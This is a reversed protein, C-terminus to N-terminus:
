RQRLTKVMLHQQDNHAAYKGYCRYGISEYLSGPGIANALFLERYGLALAHEEVTTCLQRAIGLGRAVPTVYVNCIWPTKGPDYNTSDTERLSLMGVPAGNAMALLTLPLPTENGPSYLESHFRARTELLSRGSYESWERHVWDVVVDLHQPANRLTEVSVGPESAM